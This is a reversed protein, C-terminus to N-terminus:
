CADLRFKQSVLGTPDQQWLGLFHSNDLTFLGPWHSGKTGTVVPNSWSRGGDKSTVVKMEGGDINNGPKDVDENSMFDAVLIGGVNVIQPAGADRKNKPTYLRARSPWTFGDDHSLVYDIYFIDNQESEFVCIVNGKDDVDAVGTMGDRSKKDQGSVPMPKSWTKGNDKSIKMINDQDDKNNESSYFAQLTGDRSVRLFPEWLGNVGDRRREDINGLNSWTAGGDDSGFLSIRFYTYDDTSIRDHNRSTALLRGDPHQVIFPNSISHTKALVSTVSGIAKWSVGADTSKVVRIVANPGDPAEYVGIISGDKARTARM